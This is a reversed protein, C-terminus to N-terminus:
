NNESKVIYEELDKELHKKVKDINGYYLCGAAFAHGGGEHDKSFLAVNINNCKSRLSLKFINHGVQYAFAAVKINEIERLYVIINDIDAKTLNLMQLDNDDLYSFSVQGKCILELREFAIGQVKRQNLTNDFIIKDILSTFDFGYEILNGAIELTKKNTSSYRFLGSDTAIGIYLCIAVDKNIYKKDLFSYLLECTAITDQNVISVKAPISNGEHHDIVISDNAEEFYRKYDSLRDVSSCDVVIALDYKNADKLDHLIMESNPLVSFKNSYEDLYLKVKKSDGYKCLIYNYIALASGICDGDPREHGLICITNARDIREDLISM